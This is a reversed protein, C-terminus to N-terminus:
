SDRGLNEPTIENFIDKLVNVTGLLPFLWQSNSLRCWQWNEM